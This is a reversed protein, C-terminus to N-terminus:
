VRASRSCLSPRSRVESNLKLRESVRADLGSNKLASSAAVPYGPTSDPSLRASGWSYIFFRDLETPAAFTSRNAASSCYSARV